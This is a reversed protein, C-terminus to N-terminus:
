AAFGGPREATEGRKKLFIPEKGTLLFLGLTIQAPSHFSRM